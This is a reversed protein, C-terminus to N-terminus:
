QGCVGLGGHGTAMSDGGGPEQGALNGSHQAVVVTAPNHLRCWHSCAVVGVYAGGGHVRRVGDGLAADVGSSM